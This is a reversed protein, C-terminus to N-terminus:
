TDFWQVYMRGAARDVWVRWYEREGDRSYVEPLAEIRRADWWPDWPETTLGSVEPESALRRRLKAIHALEALFADDVPALEWVNAHDMGLGSDAYRVVTVRAPIRAGFAEAFARDPSQSCSALIVVMVVAAHIRM